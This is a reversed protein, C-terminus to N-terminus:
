SKKSTLTVEYTDHRDVTGLGRCDPCPNTIVEGAGSCAGCTTSTQFRMAGHQFEQSVNGRGECGGCPAIGDGGRGSCRKCTVHRKINFSRSATGAELENLSVEISIIADGPTEPRRQHRASSRGRMGGFPNGGFMSAFLDNIDGTFGGRRMNNFQRRKNPDSLIENAENIEKFKSVADPDDPNKDPHYRQALKRYAKKIDAPSAGESIGLTAYYDKM